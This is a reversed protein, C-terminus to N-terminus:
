SAYCGKEVLTKNLRDSVEQLVEESPDIPWWKTAQTSAGGRAHWRQRIEVVSVSAVDDHRAVQVTLRTRERSGFGDRGFVGFGRKGGEMEIWATEILGKGKDQSTISYGKMTAVAADWVKDYACVYYHNQDGVTACGNVLLFIALISFIHNM